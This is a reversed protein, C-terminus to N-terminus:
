TSLTNAESALPRGNSDPRARWILSLALSLQGKKNEPLAVPSDKEGSILTAGEV